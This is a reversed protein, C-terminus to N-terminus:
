PVGFAVFGNPDLDIGGNPRVDIKALWGNVCAKGAQLRRKLHNVSM